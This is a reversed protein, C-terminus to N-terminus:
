TCGLPHGDMQWLFIPKNQAVAKRRASTLDTEWPIQLWAQEAKAPSILAILDAAKQVPAAFAPAGCCALLLLLLPSKIRM